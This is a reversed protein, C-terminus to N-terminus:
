TAARPLTRAAVHREAAGILSNTISYVAVGASFHSLLVFTVIAPVLMPVLPATRPGDPSAMAAWTIGATTVGAALAILRDPKALDVIWMFGGASSGAGRIASYLAAAPPFQLLSDIVMRRDPAVVKDRARILRRRTAALTLPLMALRAACSAVVIALGFSGGCWHALVFLLGRVVDIVNSWLM